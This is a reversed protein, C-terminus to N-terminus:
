CPTITFRTSPLDGDITEREVQLDEGFQEICQLILGEALDSLNRVSHYTMILKNDQKECEFTPLEADPYLKQVEMHVYDNVKPLFEMTSNMGEFLMPYNAWFTHWLHKGFVNLLKSVPINTVTALNTVLSVMEQPDYTGVATYIGGSELDSTEILQESVEMGFKKDVLEFFETFILGKM